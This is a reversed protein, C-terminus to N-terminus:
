VAEKSTYTGKEPKAKLIIDVQKKAKDRHEEKIHAAVALMAAALVSKDDAYGVGPAFDSIADAPNVLYVLAALITSKVWAPTDNDILCYYLTFILVLFDKGAKKVLNAVKDWFKIQKINHKM